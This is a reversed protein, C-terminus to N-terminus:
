PLPAVFRVMMVLHCASGSLVFVHWLDHAGFVGPWLRPRGTAYTV